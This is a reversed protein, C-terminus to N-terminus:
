SVTIVVPIDCSTTTSGAPFPVTFTIDVHIYYTGTAAAHFTYTPTTAVVALSGPWTAQQWDYSNIPIQPWYPQGVPSTQNLAYPQLTVSGGVSLSIAYPGAAPPNGNIGMQNVYLPWTPSKTGFLKAVYSIDKIDIKRDNNVDGRFVWRPSLGFITYSTLFAKAVVSIDKIDVRGDYNVDAPLNSSHPQSASADLAEPIYNWKWLNYFYVGPYVTNYYWGTVWDREFHAGLPQDITFDPVNQIAAEQINNYDNQRQVPNSTTAADNIWADVTSNSYLQWSSFAGGTHYTPLAFDYGDPYDALWGIVYGSIRQFVADTIYTGWPIGGSVIITYHTGYIANLANFSNQLEICAQQRAVNGSNWQLTITFGTTPMGPIKALEAEADALPTPNLSTPLGTGTSYGVISANNEPLGPVIATIPESAFNTLWTTQLYDSYNFIDAFATRIDQGYDVNGL